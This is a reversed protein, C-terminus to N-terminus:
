HFAPEYFDPAIQCGGIVQERVPNIYRYLDQYTDICVWVM